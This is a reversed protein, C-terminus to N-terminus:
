VNAFVERMVEDKLNEDAFFQFVEPIKRTHCALEISVYKSNSTNVIWVTMTLGDLLKNTFNHSPTNFSEHLDIVYLTLVRIRPDLLELFKDFESSYECAWKLYMHEGIIDLYTKYM